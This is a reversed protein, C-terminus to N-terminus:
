ASAPRDTGVSLTRWRDIEERMRALKAEAAHVAAVGALFRLPPAAVRSLQVMADALLAADGAQMGDRTEFSARLGARRDDYDAVPKDGFRLSAPSLFDTRLSGPEVITVFIGFPGVERWLCESFGELAFKSASYLSMLQAGMLGGLSSVNFIRGARAARMAPLVAWTVNFVGFLNTAFQTRADDLTSEEFLGLQGYGANNVLVDITGFRALAAAVAVQAQAADTVDLALSLRQEDDAGVSAVLREPSRGTAVVRDGAHLAAQAIHAGLGRAAGTIFWTRQM